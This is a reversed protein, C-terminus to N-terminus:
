VGRQRHCRRYRSPAAADASRALTGIGGGHDHRNPLIDHSGRSRKEPGFNENIFQALQQDLQILQRDLMEIVPCAAPRPRAAQIRGGPPINAQFPAHLSAQLSVRMTKQVMTGLQAILGGFSMVRHGDASRKTAKKAKVAESPETKAVPSTREARVADLDTDHFLLPALAERLHWEVHYALMCLFVHARVRQATWHRIPRIELDVTKMSRFAREVRSLDKYAQVTEHADLREAPISTRIVYIGDLRAEEEIRDVRRQFSLHGDRIDVTFHKAMKRSDLVAGVAMGIGAVGNLRSGKRRVPVEIRALERETAALLDERKRANSRL